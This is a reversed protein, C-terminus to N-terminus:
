LLFILGQHWLAKRRPIFCSIRLLSLFTPFYHSATPWVSVGTGSSYNDYTKCVNYHCTQNVFCKPPNHHSLRTSAWSLVVFLIPYVRHYSTQLHFFHTLSSQCWPGVSPSFWGRWASHCILSLTPSSPSHFCTHAAYTQCLLSITGSTPLTRLSSVSVAAPQSLSRQMRIRSLRTLPALRCKNLGSSLATGVTMTCYLTLPQVFTKAALCSFFRWM